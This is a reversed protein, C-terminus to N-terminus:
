NSGARLLLLATMKPDSMDLGARKQEDLSAYGVIQSNSRIGLDTMREDALVTQQPNRACLHGTGSIYFDGVDFPVPVVLYNDLQVLM